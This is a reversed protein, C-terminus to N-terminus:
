LKNFRIFILEGFEGSFDARFVEYTQIKQNNYYTYDFISIM